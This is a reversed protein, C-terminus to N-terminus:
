KVSITKVVFDYLNLKKLVIKIRTKVTPNLMYALHYMKDKIEKEKKSNGMWSTEIFILNSFSLAMDPYDTIIEPHKECMLKCAKYLKEPKKSISSDGLNFEVLAEDMCYISYKKSIRFLLELDQFRPMDIDFQYDEFVQRKAIITQTGIGYVSVVPNLFGEKYLVPAIKSPKGQENKNYKCFVLDAGTSELVKVQKELKDLHWEDDSDHLAIYTGNALSIGKNRAVCAGSNKQKVYVLREDDVKSLVQETDDTSGDDVVILELDKYTQNLVSEIAKMISKSRNYTPIIVSVM